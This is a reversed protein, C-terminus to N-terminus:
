YNGLQPVLVLTEALLSLLCLDYLGMCQHTWQDMPLQSLVPFCIEKKRVVPADLDSKVSYTPGKKFAEKGITSTFPMGFVCLM